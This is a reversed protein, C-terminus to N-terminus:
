RAELAYCALRGTRDKCYAKGEALALHPWVHAPFQCNRLALETYKDPSRGATEVLSLTGSGSWVMLREDATLACSGADGCDGGEWLSQGTEWDLCHVHQWAWYIRGRHIVPTCVKSCHEAQWEERAGALTIELKCMAGHNYASTILVHNEFVAPSAINNAFNTTWPFEAVTRGEHGRDLRTVALHNLTLVAACPVGEVTMPAPGGTHGAMDKCESAWLRRGTAKDFAMLNGEDDGVEVLLGGEIALPSTTYGYDRHGSRGIRPRQGVGYVDYLNIGWVRQGRRKTDWCNLDGDIGLSYLCGTAADFEPTATIGSYIGEDGLAHRGYQPSEYSVQWLETGKAADLCFLHDREGQWGLVYVRGQVVLPSSAGEGVEATWLPKAAPWDRGAQWGSREATTGDRHPGRWHPWDDAAAPVARWCMALAALFCGRRLKGAPACKRSQRRM